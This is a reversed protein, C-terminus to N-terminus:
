EHTGDSANEIVSFLQLTCNYWETAQPSLSVTVVPVNAQAQEATTPPSQSVNAQAQDTTSQPITVVIAQAQETPPSQSVTIVDTQAQETPSQSVTVVNTQIKETPPTVVNTQVQSSNAGYSSVPVSHRRQVVNTQFQATPPSQSVTVVNTQVQETPPTVVNTKGTSIRKKSILSMLIEFRSSFFKDIMILIRKGFPLHLRQMESVTTKLSNQLNQHDKQLPELTMKHGDSRRMEKRFRRLLDELKSVHQGMTSFLKSAAATVPLTKRMDVLEKQLLVSSRENAADILPEILEFASERTRLFRSTTSNCELMTRWYKNKLQRERDEGTEKDVADWMTTTLIINKFTNRGCLGEFMQLNKLPTGAMRNDTIRHFYLLGNLLKKREYKSKLWDAVLKLIDVDSKHSDDFGPTDVFVLDGFAFEPISIRFSSVNSTCSELKHGV